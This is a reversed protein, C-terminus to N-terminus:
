ARLTRNGSHVFDKLEDFFAHPRLAPGTTTAIRV